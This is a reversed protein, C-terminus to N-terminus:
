SKKKKALEVPLGYARGVPARAVLACKRGHRVRRPIQGDAQDQHSTPTFPGPSEALSGEGGKRRGHGSRLSLFAVLVAAGHKLCVSVYLVYLALARSHM